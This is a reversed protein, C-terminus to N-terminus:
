INNLRTCIRTGEASSIVGARVLLSFLLLQPPIRTRVLEASNFLLLALSLVQFFAFLSCVVCCRVGGGVAWIMGALVVV